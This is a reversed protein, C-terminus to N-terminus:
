YLNCFLAAIKWLSAEFFLNVFFLVSKEKFSSRLLENQLKRRELLFYMAQFFEIVFLFYFRLEKTIVNLM